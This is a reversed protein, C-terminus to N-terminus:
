IFKWVLAIHALALAFLGVSLPIHFFLWLKLIGQLSWQVDLNQKTTVMEILEEAIKEEESNLYRKLGELREKLNVRKNKRELWTGLLFLPKAFYNRLNKQYFDAITTSGTAEASELVMAEVEKRLQQCLVPIREFNLNEGHATLRGPIIRSLILGIIGSLGTFLFFAALFRELTGFPISLGNHAFFVVLAFLGVFTHAKLWFSAPLLPLTPLRKRVGFLMLLCLLIFLVLGSLWTVNVFNHDLIIHLTVFGISVVVLGIAGITQRSTAPM